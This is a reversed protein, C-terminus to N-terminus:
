DVVKKMSTLETLFQEVEATDRLRYTAQTSQERESVLVGIGDNKLAAFADEDTVDDGIYLPVVADRNLDLADLLWLVARGKDWPIDPQLEFIKKGSRKRLKPHRDRVEDVVREVRPVDGDAARRYHIAIAFRKREVQVGEVGGLREDLERQAEDLEPLCAKGEEQEMRMGDPGTIDFGHSGAYVLEDLQVLQEVDRRDRGSVVAVTFQRAAHRLV